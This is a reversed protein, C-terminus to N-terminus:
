QQVEMTVREIIGGKNLVFTASQRKLNISELRGLYVQQGVQIGQMAGNQDIVFVKDSSIAVLSSSEVNTLNDENPQIDRILPYFPNYVSGTVTSEAITLPPTEVKTGRRYLSELAFSFNVNGYEEVNNIPSITLNRVKNIPKSFEIKRVMNVVNRYYGTGSISTNIVGYQGQSSSDAFTFTFDTYSSGTNLRNIFDFVKDENNDPYLAKDYNQIYYQANEYQESLPEYQNATQQKSALETRKETLQNELTELEPEQIFAIYCWGGATILLFVLLLILTNRLAYSM